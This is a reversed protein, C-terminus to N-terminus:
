GNSVTTEEQKRIWKGDPSHPPVFVLGEQEAIGTITRKNIGTIESVERAVLGNLLGDIIEQRVYAATKM